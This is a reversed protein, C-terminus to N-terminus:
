LDDFELNPIAYTFFIVHYLVEDIEACSLKSSSVKKKMIIFSCTCYLIESPKSM